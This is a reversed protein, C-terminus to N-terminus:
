KNPFSLSSFRDHSCLFSLLDPAKAEPLADELLWGLEKFLSSDPGNDSNLFTSGVSAALSKAWDHWNKWRRKSSRAGKSRRWNREFIQRRQKKAEYSPYAGLLLLGMRRQGGGEELIAILHHVVLRNIRDDRSAAGAVRKHYPIHDFEGDLQQGLVELVVVEGPEHALEINPQIKTLKAM